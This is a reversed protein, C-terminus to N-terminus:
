AQIVRGPGSRTIKLSVVYMVSGSFDFPRLALLELAAGRSLVQAREVRSSWVHQGSYYAGGQDVIMVADPLSLYDIPMNM